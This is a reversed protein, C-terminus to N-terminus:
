GGWRGRARDEMGEMPLVSTLSLSNSKYSLVQIRKSGRKQLM